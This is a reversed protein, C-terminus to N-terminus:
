WCNQAWKVPTEYDDLPQLSPKPRRASVPSSLVQAAFDADEEEGPHNVSPSMETEDELSFITKRRDEPRIPSSLDQADRSYDPPSIYGDEQEVPELFDAVDLQRSSFVDSADVQAKLSLDSGELDSRTAIWRMM